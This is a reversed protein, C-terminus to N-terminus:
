YNPQLVQHSDMDKTEKDTFLMGDDFISEPYSSPDISYDFGLLLDVQPKILGALVINYKGRPILQENKAIERSISILSSALFSGNGAISNGRRLFNLWKNLKALSTFAIIGYWQDLSDSGCFIGQEHSIVQENALTICCDENYELERWRSSVLFQLDDWDGNTLKLEGYWSVPPMAQERELTSYERLRQEITVHPLHHRLFAVLPFLDAQTLVVLFIAPLFAGEDNGSPSGYYFVRKTTRVGKLEPKYSFSIKPRRKLTPKEFVRKVPKLDPFEVLLEQKLEEIEAIAVELRVIKHSYDSCPFLLVRYIETELNEQRSKLMDYEQKAENINMNKVCYVVGVIYGSTQLAFTVLSSAIISIRM